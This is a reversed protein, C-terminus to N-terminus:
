VAREEIEVPASNWWDSQAVEIHETREFQPYQGTKQIEVRKAVSKSPYQTTQLTTSSGKGEDKAVKYGKKGKAFMIDGLMGEADTWTANSVKVQSQPSGDEFHEIRGWRCHVDFRNSKEHEYINVEYYKNHNKAPQVCKLVVQRRLHLEGM